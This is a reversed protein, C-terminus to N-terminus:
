IELVFSELSNSTFTAWSLAFISFHVLVLLPFASLPAFTNLRNFYFKQRFESNM